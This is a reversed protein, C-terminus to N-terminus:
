TDLEHILALIREMDELNDKHYLYHYYIDDLKQIANYEILGERVLKRMSYLFAQYQLFTPNNMIDKSVNYKVDM